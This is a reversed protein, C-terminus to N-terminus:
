AAPEAPSTEKQPARTLLLGAVVATFPAVTVLGFSGVLTQLIESAVYKYNLINLIPTGQAMFVMLQAMCGGSYALLLTTTMTGMAAQGIRMGSGVAEWAGIGPKKRIVESVGSTIDVALDMMAGARVIDEVDLPLAALHALREPFVLLFVLEGAHTNVPKGPRFATRVRKGVSTLRRKGPHIRIHAEKQFEHRIDALPIM